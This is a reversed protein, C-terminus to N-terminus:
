EENLTKGLLVGVNSFGFSIINLADLPNVVLYIMQSQILHDANYLPRKFGKHFLM